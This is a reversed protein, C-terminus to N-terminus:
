LQSLSVSCIMRTTRVSPFAGKGRPVYLGASPIATIKEGAFQGPRVEDLWQMEVRDMQQQHHIRVNEACIKIAELVDPELAAYAKEFDEDTAKLGNKIISKDFKEAYEILAEDGRIRVDEIIPKVTESVDKIDAEARRLIKNLADPSLDKRKWINIKM